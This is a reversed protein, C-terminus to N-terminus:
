SQPTRAGLDRSGGSSKGIIQLVSKLIQALPLESNPVHTTWFEELAKDADKSSYGLNILASKIEERHLSSEVDINISHSHPLAAVKDKLELVVRAVGKKGLGPIKELLDVEGTAILSLLKHPEYLSLASLAVKPGIGSVRQLLEFVERGEINEFGYLTLADERVVLHTAIEIKQGVRLSTAFPVTLYVLVGFGGVEIVASNLTAHSVTGKISAIM